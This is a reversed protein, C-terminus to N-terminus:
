GSPDEAAPGRLRSKEESGAVEDFVAVSGGGHTKAHYMAFDAERLLAEATVGSSSALAIGVSGGIREEHDELIIPEGLADVVRRAVETAADASGADELLIVFEDGGFRSVTDVTRVTEVLRGAAATLFRDGVEHGHGDNILKFHDLDVFLIALLGPHRELRIVAARLREMLALRNPLATLPDRVAREELLRRDTVDRAVAYWTDGALRANWQLWRYEGDKRRYRNEFRVVEPQNEASPDTLSRTRDRDEPHLLDEARRGLLESRSYGLTREAAPNLDTFRGARDLTALLDISLEFLENRGQGLSPVSSSREDADPPPVGSVSM